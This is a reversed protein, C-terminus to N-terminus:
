GHALCPGCVVVRLGQPVAGEFRVDWGFRRAAELTIALGLGGSRSRPADRRFTAERLDALHAEPLGPGDDVVTLEFTDGVRELIVAVHGGEAGHRVANHVLNAIAREALAPVGQALIAGDPVSAAVALGRAAGLATFRAELREVIERLDVLGLACADPPGRLLTGQHLNDVLANVYEADDLARRVAPDRPPTVPALEQVALLLSALPTRLDHAIEALHRELAVQRERLEAENALIRAHSADLVGAIAGLADPVDDVVPTYGSSGVGEAARRIRAIRALLPQLVFGIAVGVVLLVAFAAGALLGTGLAGRIDGPPVLVVRVVACPGDPAIRRVDVRGGASLEGAAAGSRRVEDLLAPELPPARPNMSRREGDYAWATVMDAVEQHWHVPDAECAALTEPPLSWRAPEQMEVSARITQSVVLVAVVGAILMAVLVRTRLSLRM